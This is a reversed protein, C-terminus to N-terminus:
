ACQYLFSIIFCCTTNLPSVYNQMIPTSPTHSPLSHCSILSWAIKTPYQHLLNSVMLLLKPKCVATNRPTWCLNTHLKVYNVTRHNVLSLIHVNYASLHTQLTNGSNIPCSGLSHYYAAGFPLLTLLEKSCSDIVGSSCNCMM